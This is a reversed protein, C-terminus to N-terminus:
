EKKDNDKKAQDTPKDDGESDTDGDTSVEGEEGEEGEIFEEEEEVVVEEEKMPQTISVVVQDKDTTIELIDDTQIDEVKLSDGINLENIDLELLNPIDSPLCEIEVENLVQVTIGGETVGIPTGVLEIPVNLIVSKNMDIGYLDLHIIADTVPHYQVFKFLVTQKKNGVNINFIRAESKQAQLLEKEDIYFPISIDSDHSYFIGPIKGENRLKRIGSKNSLDRKNINLNFDNVM